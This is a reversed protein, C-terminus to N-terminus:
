DIKNSQTSCHCTCIHTNQRIIIIINIIAAEQADLHSIEKMMMLMMEIDM